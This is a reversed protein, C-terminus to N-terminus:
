DTNKMRIIIQEYLRCKENVSDVKSNLEEKLKDNEYQLDIYSDVLKYYKEEFTIARNILKKYERQSITM